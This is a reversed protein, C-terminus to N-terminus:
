PPLGARLYGDSFHQRDDDNRFPQTKAWVVISFGPTTLLFEQAERRGEEVRCLQVLAAALIRRSGAGRTSEHSLTEVADAYLGAAYQAWGLLWYYQSPPQPNLRFANRASKIGEMARGDFVLIDAYLAWAEADNPNLRLTSEIDAIGGSLDGAYARLYGLVMHADANSPDLEVARRAAALADAHRAREGWYIWSFHYSMARWAHAAAFSPDLALSKDLLALGARNNEPSMTVLPRARIFLEYAELNTPRRTPVIRAVPLVDSLANVIRGVVEDQLKFIDVLDRDFRDVWMHTNDTTDILRASIRVRADARRVSGEVVYRVGLERAIARVGSTSGRYAFSSNRAIVLLGPVKSLDDILDEALGDAFYGQEPDSSMNTFALVAISPKGTLPVTSVASASPERVVGVLRYGVRPVTAIWTDGLSKRLAAIQVTLNSEEVATNPWAANMLDGKSVPNGGAEILARLLAAARSSMAIPVGDRSLSGHADLLFPGFALGTGSM